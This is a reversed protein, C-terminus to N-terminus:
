DRASAKLAELEAELLAIRHDRDDIDALVDEASLLHPIHQSCNADWAKVSFVIVREVRAAYDPSTVKSILEADGDVVRAEGWIKIRQGHRYDILFLQAKPNDELNGVTIYQKNGSFDAFAITQDDLVHIFGRPGGRHQIYPQGSTNATAIFMSNQDKIFDACIPTIRAEWGREKEFRAYAARSGNALQKSKVSPTFAIDDPSTLHEKM